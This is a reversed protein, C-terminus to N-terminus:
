FAPIVNDRFLMDLLVIVVLIVLFVLSSLFAVTNFKQDYYLNMFFMLVLAAKAVAIAIAVIINWPEPFHMYRAAVTLVTLIALAGAVLLLTKLSYVHHHGEAQHPTASM